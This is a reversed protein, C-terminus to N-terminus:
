AVRGFWLVSLSSAAVMLVAAAMAFLGTLETHRTQIQLRSGLVQYVRRLDEATGAHYYEGGTMRAVERMKHTKCHPRLRAPGKAIRIMAEINAAVLDRFVVLGPSIIRSADDIRYAPDMSDM